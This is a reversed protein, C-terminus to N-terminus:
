YLVVRIPLVVPFKGIRESVQLIQTSKQYRNIARNMKDSTVRTSFYGNHSKYRLVQQQIIDYTCSIQQHFLKNHRQCSSARRTHRTFNNWSHRLVLQHCELSTVCSTWTASFIFCLTSFLQWTIIINCVWWKRRLQFFFNKRWLLFFCEEPLRM